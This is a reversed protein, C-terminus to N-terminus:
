VENYARGGWIVFGYYADTTKSMAQALVAAAEASARAAGKAELRAAVASLARALQNLAYADTTQSMAQELVAAAEASVRGADKPEMRAAVASLGGALWRLANEDLTKSMTQALAATTAAAEKPELRAAVASLGQGLASLANADTTKSIAQALVAATGAAEKPGMRAAVASLGQGLASLANADTTQSMAQALVAAAEKPELRAALASLGGALSRLANADNTKSMAQALVVAAEASVRAAERPELRAALASLGEALAPLANADTTKSIAQALVAATAAAEKPEMRAAVASLGQALASLANANTTKSMAQALDAAVAAADKPELRTAVASLGGALASLAAADTTKSMAQALTAAAEKPEMRAAVASLGEALSRLAHADNTKSMAQVLVPATATAERPELRAALASLGEALSRLATADNTKSIAQALVATTAAAEKPELRAAVASLGQGLASLANADTAQSMAQALVAAVAAASAPTQKELAVAALALDTRQDEGLTTDQLRELLLREVVARREPDLGITAHLAPGAQNRLQRTTEPTRLAEHIFRYWQREGRNEALQWLATIEADILPENDRLGLPGVWSRALAVQAEERAEEAEKERTRAEAGNERAEKASKEAEDARRDAQLAFYTSVTTGAILLLAVTALLGAVAPYRRCWRWLREGKGVRRALVPEDNLFRRLDASLDAATPYRKAPEKQLCKLCVTELDRPIHGDLRRPAKPEDNIVQMLMMIKSGRFPLEGILLEYLVVGLGWVDSRADAQHSRGSAQEPSMYAPTGLVHGDQTMTVEAESRLALGFDMLLPRGLQPVQRVSPASPDPGYPVIINAPKLDRHVVGMTHAYHVADAAAALLTASEQATLRRTEMLDKLPVGTVFDSVITPLGDLMLVEYVPVIGPHRLQAAARAERQFRELEDAATLLGSHPFKLAVIRDLSTDRAKWVAGFGGVGVRELLQFKGLPRMPAASVTPRAERTRFATGCAPCLVDDSHGDGLQIPNHCHPCRLRQWPPTGNAQPPVAPQTPLPETPHLPLEPM